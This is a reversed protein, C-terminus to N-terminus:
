ERLSQIIKAYMKILEKFFEEQLYDEENVKEQLFNFIKDIVLRFDELEQKKSENKELLIECIKSVSERYSSTDINYKIKITDIKDLIESNLAISVKPKGM